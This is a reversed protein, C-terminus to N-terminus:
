SKSRSIVPAVSTFHESNPSAMIALIYCPHELLSDPRTGGKEALVGRKRSSAESPPRAGECPVGLM